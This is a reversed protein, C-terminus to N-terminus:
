GEKPFIEQFCLGIVKDTLDKEDALFERFGDSGIVYEGDIQSSEEATYGAIRNLLGILEARTLDTYYCDEVGEVLYTFYEPDTEVFERCKQIASEIYVKQRRMRNANTGDAVDRRGRVFLEAQKGRLTVAAGNELMPDLMTLDDQLTVTVGDLLDNIRNVSEMDFVIYHDIPIGCLLRSVAAATNKTGTGISNGFSQALCIQTRRQGLSNGLIGCIDIDALTDRDIQLSRVTRDERDVSLLLLFDAQPGGRYTNSETQLGYSDVGIVLVTKTQWERYGYRKGNAEIILESAFREELSGKVDKEADEHLSAVIVLIVIAALFVSSLLWVLDFKHGTNARQYHIKM